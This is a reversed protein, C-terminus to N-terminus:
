RESEDYEELEKRAEQEQEESLRALELERLRRMNEEQLRRREDELNFNTAMSNRAVINQHRKYPELILLYNIDTSKVHDNYLITRQSKCYINIRIAVALPM